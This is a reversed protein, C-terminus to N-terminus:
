LSTLTLKAQINMAQLEQILLKYAYPVQISALSRSSECFSCWKQYGLLGCDTCVDVNFADSSLMLRELLLLSVGHGILCDREMEGLRLGGDRARGETPQRTLVARPGRSRGHVKDLVMHKLKQYYIPGFFIYAALPEGTIGSTMMEKGHYNYGFDCMIETIENITTGGFATGDHLTGKIVASKGAVLEKLKGVTMRSPFGHPNMIMDPCVGENNFPFDEQPVILGIVGKQGHRSSFKDGVEPRRMQRLLLKILFSEESNSTIMVREVTTEEIGKYTIPVDKYGVSNVASKGPANVSELPASAVPSSKNVLVQRNQVREGPAAIGDIDLAAHKFIPQHPPDPSVLPGMIRDSAGGLTPYRRLVCKQNRYVFCRGYGRDISAKNMISADEIDFGSYSMVAVIANQGAPMDDFHILEITKTKVVPKQPYALLYLLTDIRERQNLGITGMAQKGMACQYTNRPSQNNHPFPIIGACVGLLTFPEIELHTTIGIKIGKENISIHSDSAENVDLYEVLGDRIFDEFSMLGRNLAEIHKQTVRSQGSSPNVIIYPRCLRGGDTAVYVAKHLPNISVSVFESIFGARRIQRIASVLRKEDVAIGIILGNVYVLYNENIKAGSECLNIDQVAGLNLCVNTILDEPVDTTIHTMLALNKILGCSEGEPTDCPCVLGWQSCQLSRPGSTKRTKEFQSNIRTMMGLASIYSLRSLVQSVGIREMKFRKLTWNGTAIANVLGNTILDQRMHKTIDFQAAKIKPINKDAILRLESNFRKLLDEFLLAILSGALELRKNGYYDRDDIYAENSVALVLRKVMQALYIAKLRFNFGIVPIHAIITTSLLERVIEIPSKRRQEPFFPKGGSPATNKAKLKNAMYRLAQENTWVEARHCAEITAILFNPDVDGNNYLSGCILEVIESDSEFGMAKFVVFINIGDDTFSNHKMVIQKKKNIAINTRSKREATTSTVQCIPGEEILIRNRSLQEHILIVKESGNVVFYGGPDHPCEKLKILEAFKKNYLVCNHSRLMIPMRGIVLGTRIVRDNGRKHEIDVTIPACYTVDRLRCEHPTTMRTVNFGEEIEPKGINIDIYKLYWNPDTECRIEENAKLINKIEHEVFHNFSDLHQRVLGRSELFAPLLKWKESTEM